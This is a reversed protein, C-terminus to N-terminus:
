IEKRRTTSADDKEEEFYPCPTNQKIWLCRCGFVSLLSCSKNVYGVRCKYCDGGYRGGYKCRDCLDYTKIPNNDM